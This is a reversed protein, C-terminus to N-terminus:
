VRNFYLYDYPQYVFPAQTRQLSERVHVSPWSANKMTTYGSRDLSCVVSTPVIEECRKKKGFEAKSVQLVLNEALLPTPLKAQFYKSLSM